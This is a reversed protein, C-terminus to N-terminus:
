LRVADACVVFSASRKLIDIKSPSFVHAFVAISIGLILIVLLVAPVVLIAMISTLMVLTLAILLVRLLPIERIGVFVLVVYTYFLAKYIHPGKKM